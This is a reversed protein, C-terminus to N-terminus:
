LTEIANEVIKTIAVVLSPALITNQIALLIGQLRPKSPKEQQLEKIVEELHRIAPQIKEKIEDNVSKKVINAETDGFRAEAHLGTTHSGPGGGIATVNVQGGSADFGTINEIRIEYAFQAMDGQLNDVISKLIVAAEETKM